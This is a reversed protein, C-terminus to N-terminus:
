PRTTTPQVPATTAPKGAAGSQQRLEAEIAIVFEPSDPAVKSRFRNVVMGDRSLLFKEFNWKVEGAHNPDTDSSTLFKYLACQDDGKVSVKSFMDFTVGYNKSCFDKIDSDSGPEQEGFNNAPFGLIVLGQDKYKTYLEELGKYQPTYGCQSAVNVMLVVKGQYKSLEVPKGDITNMTFNLAAPVSPKEKPKDDGIVTVSFMLSLVAASLISFAFRPM